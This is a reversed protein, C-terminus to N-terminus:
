PEGFTAIRDIGCIFLVRKEDISPDRLAYPAPRGTYKTWIRDLQRTVYEGDADWERMEKEVTCKIQVWHYPNRPNVLLMTLRPSNRIWECKNRHSATNVLVKDGEYDFWMPTLSVRGDPGILGLTMTVPQDLLQKYKPDLDALGLARKREAVSFQGPQLGKAVHRFNAIIFGQSM